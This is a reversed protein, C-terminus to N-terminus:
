GSVVPRALGVVPYVTSRERTIVYVIASTLLRSLSIRRESKARICRARKAGVPVNWGRSSGMSMSTCEDSREAAGPLVLVEVSQEMQKIICSRGGEALLCVRFKIERMM